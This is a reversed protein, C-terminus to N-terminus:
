LQVTKVHIKLNQTFSNSERIAIHITNSSIVKFLCPYTTTDFNFDGLSEISTQVDYNNGVMANSLTCEVVTMGSIVNVIQASAINGSVPLNQGITGSGPNFGSFWGINKIPSSGIGDIIAKDEKSLLGNQLITALYSASDVGNVRRIFAILNVLPTTAVTDIAGANEQTQSAKKLYNFESVALDLNVADVERILSVGSSTRILRVYEGSKFTGVVTLSNTVNDIGKIQTENTFDFGALCLFSEKQLIFGLKLGVNVVGSVTTLDLIFDNKSALARLADILQFGNLENDPLDNPVIGYLRMLKDKMEHLDGYVFENVPTGNGSGTNDKIRGNPYLTPNANDINSALLKNRM